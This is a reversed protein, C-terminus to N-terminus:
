SQNKEKENCINGQEMASDVYDVQTKDIHYYLFDGDGPLIRVLDRSDTFIVKIPLLIKSSTILDLIKLHPLEQKIKTPGLDM